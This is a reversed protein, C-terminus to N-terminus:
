IFCLAEWILTCERKRVEVSKDSINSSLYCANSKLMSHEGMPGSGICEKVTERKQLYMQRDVYTEDTLTLVHGPESIKSM